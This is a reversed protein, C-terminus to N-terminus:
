KKILTTKMLCMTISIGGFFVNCIFVNLLRKNSPSKMSFIFVINRFGVVIKVGGTYDSDCRAPRAWFSMLKPTLSSM